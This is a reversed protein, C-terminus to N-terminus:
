ETPACTQGGNAFLENIKDVGHQGLQRASHHRKHKHPTVKCDSKGANAGSFSSASASALAVGHLKAAATAAMEVFGGVFFWESKTNLAGFGSPVAEAALLFSAAAAELAIKVL